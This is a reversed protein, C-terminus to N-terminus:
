PAILGLAVLAAHVGAATVPVGTQKAIPYTGYAGFRDGTHYLDGAIAAGPEIALLGDGRRYITTAFSYDSGSGIAYRGDAYQRWRQGSEGAVQASATIGGSSAKIHQVVAGQTRGINQDGGSPTAPTAVAATGYFPADFLEVTGAPNDFAYTVGQFWNRGSLALQAGAGVRIAVQNTAAAGAYMCSDLEVVGASAGLEVLASTLSSLNNNFICTSFKVLFGANIKVTPNDATTRELICHTFSIHSPVSYSTTATVSQKINLAHRGADTVDFGLFALGGAEKDIVLGDRGARHATCKIHTDNQAYEITWNDQAADHVDVREFLRAAGTNRKFPQTAIDNGHVELDRIVGGEGNVDIGAGATACLIQTGAYSQSSGMGLLSVGDPVVVRGTIRISGRPLQVAGAQSDRVANIAVNIAATQDGTGNTALGAPLKAVAALPAGSADAWVFSSGSKAPVQGDSGTGSPLPVYTGSLAATIDGLTPDQTEQLGSEPGPPFYSKVM